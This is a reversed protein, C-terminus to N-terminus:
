FQELCNQSGIRAMFLMGSFFSDQRGSWIFFAWEHTSIAKM